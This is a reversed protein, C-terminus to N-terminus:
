LRGTLSRQGLPSWMMSLLPRFTLAGECVSYPFFVWRVCMHLPWGMEPKTLPIPLRTFAEWLFQNVGEVKHPRLMSAGDEFSSSGEGLMLDALAKTKPKGVGLVILLCQSSGLRLYQATASGLVLLLCFCPPTAGCCCPRAM